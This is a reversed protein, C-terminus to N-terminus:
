TVIEILLFASLFVLLIPPHTNRTVKTGVDISHDIIAIWDQAIPRVQKLQGLGVRLAWNIVSTFHPIWPLNLSTKTNFLQLIRPVSRFSVVAELILLVCLIRTQEAQRIDIVNATQAPPQTNWETKITQELRSITNKKKM